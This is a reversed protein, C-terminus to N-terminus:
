IIYNILTLLVKMELSKCPSKQKNRGHQFANVHIGIVQEVAEHCQIFSCGPYEFLAQLALVLNNKLSYSHSSCSTSLLCLEERPSEGWWQLSLNNSSTVFLEWHGANVSVCSIHDTAWWHMQFHHEQFSSDKLSLIILFDSIEQLTAHIVLSSDMARMHSAVQICAATGSLSVVLRHGLDVWCLQQNSDPTM